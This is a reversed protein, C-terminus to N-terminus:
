ASTRTRRTMSINTTPTLAIGTRTAARATPVAESGGAPQRTLFFVSLTKKASALGKIWVPNPASFLCKTDKKEGSTDEDRVIPADIYRQGWVYQYKVDTAVAAATGQDDEFRGEVVQWRRTYYYDTRDWDSGPVLKAIRRHGEVSFVTNHGRLVLITVSLDNPQRRVSWHCRIGRQHTGPVAVIM